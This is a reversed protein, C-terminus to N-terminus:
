RIAMAAAARMSVVSAWTLFAWARYLSRDVLLLRPQIWGDISQARLNFQLGALLLEDGRAVIEVLLFQGQSADDAQRRTLLKSEGLFSRILGQSGQGELLVQLAGVSRAGVVLSRLRLHSGRFERASAGGGTVIGGEVEVRVVAVCTHGWGLGVSGPLHIAAQFDGDKRSSFNM